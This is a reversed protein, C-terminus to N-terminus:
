IEIFVRMIKRYLFAPLWKPKPKLHDEFSRMMQKASIEANRRMQRGFYQQIKKQIKQGSKSSAIDAMRAVQDELVSIHVFEAKPCIESAGNSEPLAGCKECHGDAPKTEGNSHGYWEM